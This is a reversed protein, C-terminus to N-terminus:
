VFDYKGDCYSLRHIEQKRPLITVELDILDKISTSSIKKVLFNEIQFFGALGHMKIYIVIKGKEQAIKVSEIMRASFTHITYNEADLAHVSRGKTMDLADSVSCIGAIDTLPKCDLDHAVVAHLVFSKFIAYKARDMEPHGAKYIGELLNDTLLAGWIYHHSRHVQNGIDHLLAATLVVSACDDFDGGHDKVYDPIRGIKEMARLIQLAKAGVIYAHTRGHDNFHMKRIMMYDAADWLAKIEKSDHIYDWTKRAKSLDKTLELIKAKSEEKLANYDINKRVIKEIGLM